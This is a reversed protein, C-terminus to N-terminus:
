CATARSGPSRRSSCTGPGPPATRSPWWTPTAASSGASPPRSSGSHPPAASVFLNRGPTACDTPAVPHPHGGILRRVSAPPQELDEAREAAARYGGVEAERRLHGVVTEVVDTTPLSSGASDLFVQTTCGPTQAREAALDIVPGDDRM